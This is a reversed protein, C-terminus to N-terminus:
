TGSGHLQGGCWRRPGTVAHLDINHPMKSDPRNMLHFEVEDGHRVRIFKGPVSGGFTWFMYDVGDAMRKVIEQVELKVIMKTAHTRTIVPPVLPANTLIANEQGTVVDAKADSASFDSAASALSAPAAPAPAAYKAVEKAYAAQAILENSPSKKENCSTLVLSSVLLTLLVTTRIPMM